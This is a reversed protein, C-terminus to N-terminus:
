YPDGCVRYKGGEEVLEFVHTGTSGDFYTLKMTVQGTKKGNTTNLSFGTVSHGTIKQVTALYGDFKERSFEQKTSSCLSNYAADIRGAQLDDVFANASDRVPASGAVFVRYIGYGGGGCCLLVLVVAVIIVTKWPFRKRPPQPPPYTM